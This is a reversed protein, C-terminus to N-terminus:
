FRVTMGLVPGHQIVDYEYRSNGSGQSYDVSLARYGVYADVVYRDSLCLESNFTAVAQWTFDSGAGFGGVDGRVTLQQGPALTHRVRAGIFPDLWDVSGSRAIVRGGSIILGSNPPVVNLNLDASVSTDQYWYRVGALGDLAAHGATGATGHSYVEYAGGVEVTTQLYDAEVAGVLTAAGLPGSRAFEGSGELKTYVIDNFLSFRGNRAEAYSMWIPIESWDLAEILDWPSAEVGFSRGRVTLDGEVRSLWGYTTFSVKWGGLPLPLAETVPEASSAPGSAGLLLLGAVAAM